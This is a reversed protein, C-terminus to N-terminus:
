LYKDKTPDIKNTEIEFEPFVDTIFEAHWDNTKRSRVVVEADPNLMSLKMILEANTM